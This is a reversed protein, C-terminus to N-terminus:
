NDIVILILCNKLVVVDKVLNIGIVVWVVLFLKGEM